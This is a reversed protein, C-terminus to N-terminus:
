QDDINTLDIENGGQKGDSGYSYIRIVGENNTYQYPQGWPDLPLTAIYGSTNWYLPIPDSTPQVILAELGQDTSPYINNDLKYKGLADRISMIDTKVKALNQEKSNGLIYPMLLYAAVAIVAIAVLYGLLTAGRAKQM